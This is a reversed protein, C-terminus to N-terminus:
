WRAFLADQHYLRYHLEQIGTGNDEVKFVLIVNDGIDGLHEIRVTIEGDHTSNNSNDILNILIQRLRSIDTVIKEPVGPLIDLKLINNKISTRTSLMSILDIMEAKLDITEFQVVLDGSRIASFDLIDNVTSLMHTGNSNLLHLYEGLDGDFHGSKLLDIIGLMGNLNNLIKYSLRKLVVSNAHNLQDKELRLDNIRDEYNNRLNREAEELANIKNILEEKQLFDEPRDNPNM